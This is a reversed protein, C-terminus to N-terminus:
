EGITKAFIDTDVITFGYKKYLNRAAERKKNSTLQIKSVNERKALTEVEELLRSAIGRNQYSEKVCVYDLYFTTKNKTPDYKTTIMINGVITNDMKACLFRVGRRKAEDVDIIEVNENFSERILSELQESRENLIEIIM